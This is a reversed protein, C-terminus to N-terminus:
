EIVEDARLLLSQPITLGLARASKLNLTLKFTSPREVALDGPKAGGLIRHMQYAARRALAGIDTGLSLLGGEAAVAFQSSVLSLRRKSASEIFRARVAPTGALVSDDLLFAADAGAAALTAFAQPVDAAGRAEVRVLALGLPGLGEALGRLYERADPRDPNIIVAVKRTRPAIDKLLQLCKQDWQTSTLTTGTVNGTPRALSGALDIMLEEGAPGVVIPITATARAAAGAAANSHTYIVEPQLRVLEAALAPLRDLAQGAFRFELTVNSGDVHGLERLGQVFNVVSSEPRELIEAGAPSLIGVRPLRAAPQGWARRPLWLTTGVWVMLQRRQPGQIMEDARLLLSESSDGIGRLPDRGDPTITYVVIMDRFEPGRRLKRIGM